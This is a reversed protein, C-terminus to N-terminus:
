DSALLCIQRNPRHSNFYLFGVLWGIVTSSEHVAEKLLSGAHAALLPDDHLAMPHVASPPIGDLFHHGLHFDTKKETTTPSAHSNAIDTRDYGAFDNSHWLHDDQAEPERKRPSATQYASPFVGNDGLRGASVAGNHPSQEQKATLSSEM